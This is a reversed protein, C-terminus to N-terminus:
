RGRGGSYVLYPGPPTWERWGEQKQLRAYLAKSREFIKKWHPNRHVGAHPHHHAILAPQDPWCVHPKYLDLVLYTRYGLQNMRQCILSDFKHMFMREEWPGGWREQATLLPRIRHLNCVSAVESVVGTTTVERYRNALPWAIIGADTNANATAVMMRLWGPKVEVDQDMVVLYEADPVRELLQALMVNRSASCGMNKGFGIYLADPHAKHMYEKIMSTQESNDFVIPLIPMDTNFKISRICRLLDQFGEYALVAVGIKSM